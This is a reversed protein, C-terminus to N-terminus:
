PNVPPQSQLKFPRVKSPNPQGMVSHVFVQLKHQTPSNVKEFCEANSSYPQSTECKCRNTPIATDVFLDLLTRGLQSTAPTPTACRNTEPRCARLFCTTSTSVSCCWCCEVVQRADYNKSQAFYTHFVQIQQVERLRTLAFITSVPTTPLGTTFKLGLLLPM